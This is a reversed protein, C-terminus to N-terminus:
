CIPPKPPMWLLFFPLGPPFSSCDLLKIMLNQKKTTGECDHELAISFWYKWLQNTFMSDQRLCCLSPVECKRKRLSFKTSPVSVCQEMLSTLKWSIAASLNQELKLTQLLFARFVVHCVELPGELSRRYERRSPKAYELNWVFALHMNSHTWTEYNFLPSWHDLLPLRPFLYHQCWESPFRPLGSYTREGGSGM